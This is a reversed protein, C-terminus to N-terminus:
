RKPVPDQVGGYISGWSPQENQGSRSYFDKRMVSAQKKFEAGWKQYMDALAFRDKDIQDQLLYTESLRESWRLALKEYAEGQAYAIASPRLGQEIQLYDDGKALWNCALRLFIDIEADTFWQVYYTAELRQGNTPAVLMEFEGTEIIDASIDTTLQQVGNIYVGFRGTATTFDTVRRFELTKFLTNVGDIKGLVQKRYRLKDTAGDSLQTRLDTIPATWSM